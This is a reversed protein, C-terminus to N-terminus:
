IKKLEEERRTMSARFETIRSPAVYVYEVIARFLEDMGWTMPVTIKEKSAHAGANGLTRLITSMESLVPPIEGRESLSALRAHLSGSKVDRDDCITELARRLIVAYASPSARRIRAAEEYCDRVSEPVSVHLSHTRPYVVEMESIETDHYLILDKCTACIRAEYTCSFSMDARTGDTNYLESDEYEHRFALSQPATNGCHPCYRIVDAAM